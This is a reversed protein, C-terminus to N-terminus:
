TEPSLVVWWRRDRGGRDNREHGIYVAIRGNTGHKILGPRYGSLTARNLLSAPSRFGLGRAAQATSCRPLTSFQELLEPAVSEGDALAAVRPLLPSSTLPPEVAAVRPRPMPAPKVAAESAAAEPAPAALLRRELQELRELIAMLEPTQGAVGPQQDPDAQPPLEPQQPPAPQQPPLATAAAPSPLAAAAGNPLAGAAASATAAAAPDPDAAGRLPRRFVMMVLQGVPYFGLLLWGDRGQSNLFGRLQVAPHEQSSPGGPPPNGYFGPFEKELYERSFVAEPRTAAAPDDPRPPPPPPPPPSAPAPSQPAEVNLHIVQYEWLEM